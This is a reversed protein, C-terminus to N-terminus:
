ENSGEIVNYTKNFKETGLLDKVFEDFSKGAPHWFQGEESMLNCSWLSSEVLGKDIYVQKNLVRVIDNLTRNADEFGVSSTVAGKTVHFLLVTIDALSVKMHPRHLMRPTIDSM